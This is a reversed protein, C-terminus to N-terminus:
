ASDPQSAVYVGRFRRLDDTFFYIRVQSSRPHRASGICYPCSPPNPIDDSHHTAEAVALEEVAASRVAGCEINGHQRPSGRITSDEVIEFM